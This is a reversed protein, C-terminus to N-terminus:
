KKAGVKAKLKAIDRKLCRVIGYQMSVYTYELLLNGDFGVSLIKDLLADIYTPDYKPFQERRQESYSIHVSQMFPLTREIRDMDYAKRRYLSQFYTKFNDCAVDAQIKLFADTNNNYTNGHCEPCVALGYKEAAACMAKADEVLLKYTAEDTKESDERGLWVRVSDAGLAAAVECIQQWQATDRSGVRYYSGYSSSRIGASDCLKKVRKATEVDKVHIDGGWEICDCGADVAIKVIKEVDKIQRLTTTTFGIQMIRFGGKLYNNRRQRALIRM